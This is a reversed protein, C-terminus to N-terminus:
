IEQNKYFCIENECNFVAKPHQFNFIAAPKHTIIKGSKCYTNLEICIPVILKKITPKCWLWFM